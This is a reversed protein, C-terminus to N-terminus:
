RGGLSLKVNANARAGHLEQCWILENTVSM